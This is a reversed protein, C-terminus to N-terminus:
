NRLHTNLFAIMLNTWNENWDHGQNTDVLLKMSAGNACQWDVDDRYETASVCSNAKALLGISKEASVVSYPGGGVLPVKSDRDGSIHLVSVAQTPSCGEVTFAGAGVGIGTVFNPIECALRYGMMGGNSFGFVWVRKSDIKYFNRTNTIIHALFNVDLSQVGTAPLCCSGANWSQAVGRESGLGDPYAVIMPIVSNELRSQEQMILASGGLGHLGLALPYDLNHDYNVPLVIRYNRDAGNANNVKFILTQHSEIIQDSVM